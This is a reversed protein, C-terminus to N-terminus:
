QSPKQASQLQILYAAHSNIVSTLEDVKKELALIKQVLEKKNLKLVVETKEDEPTTAVKAAKTAKRQLFKLEKTVMSETVRYKVAITTVDSDAIVRGSQELAYLEQGALKALRIEIAKPTRQHSEAIQQISTGSKFESLLRSDEEGSWFVGFRNDSNEQKAYKAM